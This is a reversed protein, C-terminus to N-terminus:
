ISSLKKAIARTIADKMFESKTEKKLWMLYSIDSRLCSNILQGITKDKHVGYRIVVTYPDLEKKEQEVVVKGNLIEEVEKSSLKQSTM